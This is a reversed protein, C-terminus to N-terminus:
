IKKNYYVYTFLKILVSLNFVLGFAIIMGILSDINTMYWIIISVAMLLGSIIQIINISANSSKLNVFEEREDNEKKAEKTKEYSLSERIFLYAFAISLLSYISNQIIKGNSIDNLQIVLLTMFILSAILFFIGIWFSKKNYIKM